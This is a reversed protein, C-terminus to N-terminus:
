EMWEVKVTAALDSHALALVARAKDKFVDSTVGNKYINIWGVQPTPDPVIIWHGEDFNVEDIVLKGNVLKAIRGENDILEKGEFLASTLDRFLNM